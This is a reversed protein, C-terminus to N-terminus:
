GAVNRLEGKSDKGTTAGKDQGQAHAVVYGGVATAIISIILKPNAVIEAANHLLALGVVGTIAIISGFLKKM